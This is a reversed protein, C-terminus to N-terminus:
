FLFNKKLAVYYGGHLGQTVLSKDRTFVSIKTWTTTEPRARNVICKAAICYATVGMGPSLPQGSLLHRSWDFLIPEFSAFSHLQVLLKSDSGIIIHTQAPKLSMWVCWAMIILKLLLLERLKQARNQPSLEACFLCFSWTAAFNFADLRVHQQSKVALSSRFHSTAPTTFRVNWISTM